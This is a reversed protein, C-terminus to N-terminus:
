PHIERVILCRGDIFEGGGAQCRAVWSQRWLLLVVMALGCALSMAILVWMLRDLPETIKRLVAQSEADLKPKTM